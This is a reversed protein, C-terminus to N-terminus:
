ALGIYTTNQYGFVNYSYAHQDYAPQLMDYHDAISFILAVNVRFSLYHNSSLINPRTYPLLIQFPFRSKAYHTKLLQGILRLTLPWESMITENSFKRSFRHNYSIAGGFTEYCSQPGTWGFPCCLDIGLM